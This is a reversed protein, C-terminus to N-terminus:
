STLIRKMWGNGDRNEWSTGFARSIARMVSDLQIDHGALIAEQKLKPKFAEIEMLVAHFDHAGDLFVLDLSQDPYNWAASLSHQELVRVGPGELATGKRFHEFAKRFGGYKEAIQRADKGLNKKDFTDVLDLTFKKHAKVLRDALYAASSGFLIGVEVIHCNEPLKKAMEDYFPEFNFWGPIGFKELM